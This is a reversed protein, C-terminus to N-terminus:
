LVLALRESSNEVLKVALFVRFRCSDCEDKLMNAWGAENQLHRM